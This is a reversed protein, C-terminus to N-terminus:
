SGSVMEDKIYVEGKDARILDLILRFLTTKGAGNNGVLGIIEGINIEASPVNVVANGSYIKILNNIRVM